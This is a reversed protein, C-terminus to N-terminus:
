SLLVRDDQVANQKESYVLARFLHMTLLHLSQMLLYLCICVLLLLM